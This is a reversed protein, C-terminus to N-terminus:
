RCRHWFDPTVIADLRVDWPQPDIADVQQLSHGIGILRPRSRRGTRRFTFTRDYFGGGMGIRHGSRDFAILPLLVADLAWAARRNRSTLPPEPIRYRNLPLREGPRFRVFMLRNDGNPWLLPLYFDRAPAIRTIGLPSIEGKVPWYLAIHRTKELLRSKRMQQLLRRSAQRQQRVSLANRQARIRRRLSALNTM